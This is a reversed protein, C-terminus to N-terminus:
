ILFFNEKELSDQKRIVIDASAIVNPIYCPYISCVFIERKLKFLFQLAEGRDLSIIFLPKIFDLFLTKNKKIEQLKKNVLDKKRMKFKKLFSGEVSICREDNAFKMYLFKNSEPVLNYFQYRKKKHKVLELDLDKESTESESGSRCNMNIQKINIEECIMINGM